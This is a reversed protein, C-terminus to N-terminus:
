GVSGSGVSLPSSGLSHAPAATTGPPVETSALVEFGHWMFSSLVAAAVAGFGLGLCVDFGVDASMAGGQVRGGVARALEYSLVCCGVAAARLRSGALGVVAGIWACSTSLAALTLAAIGIGAAFPWEISAALCTCSAALALYGLSVKAAPSPELGREDLWSCLMAALPVLVLLPALIRLELALGSGVEAVTPALRVIQAFTIWFGLQLVLLLSLAFLKSRM